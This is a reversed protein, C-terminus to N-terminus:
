FAQPFPFESQKRPAQPFIKPFAPLPTCAFPSYLHSKRLHSLSFLKGRDGQRPNQCLFQSEGMSLSPLFSLSHERHIHKGGSTVEIEGQIFEPHEHNNIKGSFYLFFLLFIWIGGFHSNSSLAKNFPISEPALHVAQNLDQCWWNGTHSNPTTAYGRQAKTQQQSFHCIKIKIGEFVSESM